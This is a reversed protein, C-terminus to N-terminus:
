VRIDQVSVGSGLKRLSYPLISDQLSGPSTAAPGPLSDVEATVANANGIWKKSAAGRNSEKPMVTQTSV